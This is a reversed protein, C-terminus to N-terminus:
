YRRDTVVKTTANWTIYGHEFNSRRGGPIAFEDSKPYGLYSPEWGRPGEM